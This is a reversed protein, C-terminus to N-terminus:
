PYRADYDVSAPSAYGNSHGGGNSPASLVGHHDNYFATRAGDFSVVHTADGANRGKLVLIEALGDRPDEPDNPRRYYDARHLAIVIDADQEITGSDRLDALTPREGGKGPALRRFQSLGFVTTRYEKAIIKLARTIQGIEQARNADGGRILDAGMLQIYDVVIAALPLKPFAVRLTSLHRRLKARLRIPTIDSQDDVIIPLPALEAAADSVASWEPPRGERLQRLATASARAFSRLMLQDKSMELSFVVVLGPESVDRAMSEAVQMAFATKGMGPRGAIVVFEGPQFGGLHDDLAHFGSVRGQVPKGSRAAAEIQAYCRRSLERYDAATNEGGGREATAGFARTECSELWRDADDIPAVRAEISLIQFLEGARRIRALNRVIKAHDAVHAVAPTGDALQALYVSGGVQELRGDSRLKSAIAVVDVNGGAVLTSCIAGFIQRNADAYFDLPGLLEIVELAADQSLLCASLVAAEADLDSRPVHVADAM